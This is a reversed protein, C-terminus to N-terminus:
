PHVEVAYENRNFTPPPPMTHIDSTWTCSYTAVGDPRNLYVLMDPDDHSQFPYCDYLVIHGDETNFEVQIPAVYANKFDEQAAVRAVLGLCLAALVASVIKRWNLRRFLCPQNLM